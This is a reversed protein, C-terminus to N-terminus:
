RKVGRLSKKILNIFPNVKLISTVIFYYMAGISVELFLSFIAYKTSIDISKILIMMIICNISWIFINKTQFKFDSNRFLNIGRYIAIAIQGFLFGLVAGYVDVLPILLICVVVNIATAVIMSINYTKMENKPLLYQHAVAQNFQQIVIIPALLPIMKSVLSFDSGFLFDVLDDNISVIGFSMPLTLYFQIHIVQQLVKVLESEGKAKFVNAMRPMMVINLSHIITGIMVILTISNSFIGVAVVGSFLGLLTKSLNNFLTSSIKLFFFNLSPLFHQFIDSITTKVYYIKGKLSFWLIFTSLVTSVSIILAYLNLDEADKIFLIILILTTIKVFFNRIAVKKFDEIGQFFWSIDIIISVIMLSQILFLINDTIFICFIFYIMLVFISFSLNFFQLEFFKKSLLEKDEKVYAIERVAYNSLGLGAVLSFYTVISNTYNWKGIGEPGLARSIIPVTIIPLLVTLLQYSSQYIFNTLIKKM